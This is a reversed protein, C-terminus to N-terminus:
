FVFKVALQIIRPATGAALATIKGFDPSNLTSVPNDLNVHNFLNFTEMRLQVQQAGVRLSPTLGVDLNWMGAGQIADIPMTGYVGPAPAQFAAANLWQTVTRDAMFPDTLVQNARQNPQGTLANDVGTTVTFYSASRASAIASVQWGGTM